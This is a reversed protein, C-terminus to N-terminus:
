DPEVHVESVDRRVRLSHYLRGGEDGAVAPETIQWKEVKENYFMDEYAFIFDDATFPAGDSWKMGKHMTFTYIKKDASIAFGQMLEPVMKGDETIRVMRGGREPMETMDQWPYNDLAFVQLTGGYRGIEPNALAM